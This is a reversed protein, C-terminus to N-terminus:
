PALVFRRMNGASLVLRDKPINTKIWIKIDRGVHYKWVTTTVRGFSKLSDIGSFVVGGGFTLLGSLLLMLVVTAARMRESLFKHVAVIGYISIFLYIM